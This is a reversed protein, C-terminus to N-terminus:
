NSGDENKPEETPEEELLNQNTLSTVQVPLIPGGDAMAKLGEMYLDRNLNNSKVVENRFSEVAAGTQRQQQSNEITLMPLWTVACGWHDVDEGTQPHLGRVHMWWSCKGEICNKKILPCYQGVESNSKFM